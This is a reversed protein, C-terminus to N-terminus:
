TALRANRLRPPARDLWAETILEELEAPGIVDLRVLIANYGNFHPVTFYVTPDSAILAQKVGEDAIRAALVPGEPADDGLAELDGRRLPREWVFLRDKVKWQAGDRKAVEVAEPMALALRRVDDTSAM